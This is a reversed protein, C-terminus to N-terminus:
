DTYFVERLLDEQVFRRARRYISLMTGVDIERHRLVMIMQNHGEPSRRRLKIHSGRQSYIHFGFGILISVVERASLRKLRPM